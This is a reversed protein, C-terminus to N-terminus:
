DRVIALMKEHLHGNSALVCTKAIPLTEGKTTTVKGGAEEIFLRGAAFDWPSLQYEFFGGFWGCGVMALDLSAAGMRRIGHIDKGFFHEIAKLTRRMMAGRDYYFGCGVLVQSLETATDVRAPVQNAMAGGGLTATFWDEHMPNYIVGAAAQGRYYYAISVAFHPVRHAFNNTGDLPDIIWLHDASADGVLDEEGMLEHDPFSDRITKAVAREADLDADSVLDYTKGGVDSKNRMVVGRHYYDRLIDGAAQAAAIAVSLEKQFKTV